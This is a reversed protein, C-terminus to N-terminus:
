AVVKKSLFFTEKELEYDEKNLLTELNLENKAKVRNSEGTEDLTKYDDFKPDIFMNYIYGGGSGALIELTFAHSLKLKGNKKKVGNVKIKASKFKFQNNYYITKYPFVPERLIPELFPLINKIYEYFSIEKILDKNQPHRENYDSNWNPNRISIIKMEDELTKYIM